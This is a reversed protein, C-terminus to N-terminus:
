EERNHAVKKHGPHVICVWELMPVSLEENKRGRDDVKVDKNKTKIM